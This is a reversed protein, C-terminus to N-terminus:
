AARNCSPSAGMDAFPMRWQRPIRPQVRFYSFSRPAKLGPVYINLLRNFCPPVGEAQRSAWVRVHELSLLYIGCWLRNLASVFRFAAFLVLVVTGGVAVHVM